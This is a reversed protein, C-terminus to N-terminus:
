EKDSEYEKKAEKSSWKEVWNIKEEQSKFSAYFPQGDDGRAVIWDYGEEEIRKVYYDDIDFYGNCYDYLPTGIM